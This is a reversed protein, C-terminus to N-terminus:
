VDTAAMNFGVFSGDTSYGRARQLRPSVLSRGVGVRGGVDVCPVAFFIRWLPTAHNDGGLAHHYTTTYAPLTHHTHHPPPPPAPPTPSNTRLTTANWCGYTWSHGCVLRGNWYIITAHRQGLARMAASAGPIATGFPVVQKAGADEQVTQWFTITTYLYSLRAGRAVDRAYACNQGARKIANHRPIDLSNM